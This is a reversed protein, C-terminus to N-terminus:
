SAAPMVSPDIVVRPEIYSGDRADLCLVYSMSYESGDKRISRLEYLFDWAPIYQAVDTRNPVNVMVSALRIKYIHAYEEVIGAEKAANRLLLQQEARELIQDFPLLVADDELIATQKTAGQWNFGCVGDADVTIFLAEEVWRGALKPMQEKWIRGGGIYYSPLGAVEKTFVYQWGKSTLVLNDRYICAKEGLFCVMDELGLDDVTQQAVALGEEYSILFAREFDEQQPSTEDIHSECVINTSYDRYYIFANSGQEIRFLSYTDYQVNPSFVWYIGGESADEISFPQRLAQVDAPEPATELVEQYHELIPAIDQEEQVELQELALLREAIQRKDLVAEEYLQAGLTFYNVLFEQYDTSFLQKRVETVKYASLLPMQIPAEIKVQLNDHTVKKSIYAPTQYCAESENTLAATSSEGKYLAIDGEPTPQCGAGGACLLLGLMGAVIRKM